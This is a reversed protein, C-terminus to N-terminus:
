PHALEVVAPPPGEELLLRVLRALDHPYLKEATAELEEVTWWRHGAHTTRESEELGSLDVRFPSTRALHFVEDQSFVEGGQRFYRHNRWLAAGIEASALGLEEALERRLGDEESEGENLGGGPTVWYAGGRRPNVVKILLVRDAPDLLM